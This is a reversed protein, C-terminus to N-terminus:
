TFIISLRNYFMYVDVILTPYSNRGNTIKRFNEADKKQRLQIYDKTELLAEGLKGELSKSAINSVQNIGEEARKRIFDFVM